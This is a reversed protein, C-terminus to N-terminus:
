AGDGSFFRVYGGFGAREGGRDSGGNAKEWQQGEVEM